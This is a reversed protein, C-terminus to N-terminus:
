LKILRNKEMRRKMEDILLSVISFQKSRLFFFRSNACNKNDQKTLAVNVTFKSRSFQFIRQKNDKKRTHVNKPLYCVFLFIDGSCDRGRSLESSCPDGGEGLKKDLCSTEM